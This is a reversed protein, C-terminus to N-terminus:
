LMGGNGHRYLAEELIDQVQLIQKTEAGLPQAKQELPFYEWLEGPHTDVHTGIQFPNDTILDHTLDCFCMGQGPIEVCLRMDKHVAVLREPIVPAFQDQSWQEFGRYVSPIEERLDGLRVYFVQEAWRVRVVWERNTVGTTKEM